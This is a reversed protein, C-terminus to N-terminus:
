GHENSVKRQSKTLSQVFYQAIVNLNKIKCVSDHRFFLEAVSGIEELRLNLQRIDQRSPLEVNPFREM